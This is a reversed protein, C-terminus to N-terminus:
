RVFRDLWPELEDALVEYAAPQIGVGAPGPMGWYDHDYSGDPVFFREGFDAYFVTEDDTLQALAAANADAIEQWSQRSDRPPIGRPIPATLLIKAQPQRARIEAIISAWGAVFEPERNPSFPDSIRGGSGLQLVVLKAAYGDLEGNQMRWLLSRPNTGQSGFNAAKRGALERDWVARGREAWSWMETETTGFFVLEIDGKQALDIFHDHRQGELAHTLTGEPAQASPTWVAQPRAAQTVREPQQAGAAYNVAAGVVAIIALSTKVKM